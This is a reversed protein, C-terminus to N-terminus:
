QKEIVNKFLHANASNVHKGTLTTLNKSYIYVFNKRRKAFIHMSVSKRKSIRYERNKALLNLNQQRCIAEELLPFGSFGNIIKM